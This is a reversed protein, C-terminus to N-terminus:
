SHLMFRRLPRYVPGERGRVSEVLVIHRVHWMQPLTLVNAPPATRADRLLTVHVTYPSDEVRFGADELAAACDAALRQLAPPTVSAGAYVIRSRRFYGLRDLALDFVPPAMQEGLAGLAPLRSVDVEGLFALTAHLNAAPILRGRSHAHCARAADFLADRVQADPWLAFFLRM